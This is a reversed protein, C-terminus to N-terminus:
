FSPGVYAWCQHLRGTGFSLICFIIRLFFSDLWESLIESQVRACIKVWAVDHGSQSFILVVELAVRSIFHGLSERMEGDKMQCTEGM